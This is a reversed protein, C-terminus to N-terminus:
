DDVASRRLLAPVQRAEGHPVGQVSEDRSIRPVLPAEHPVSHDDPRHAGPRVVRVRQVTLRHGLLRAFVRQSVGEPARNAIGEVRRGHDGEGRAHILPPTDRALNVGAGREGPEAFQGRFAVQKELDSICSGRDPRDEVDEGPIPLPVCDLARARERM